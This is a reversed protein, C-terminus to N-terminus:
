LRVAGRQSQFVDASSMELNTLVVAAGVAILIMAAMATWFAKM